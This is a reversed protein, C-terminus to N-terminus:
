TDITKVGDDTLYLENDLYVRLEEKWNHLKYLKADDKGPPLHVVFGYNSIIGAEELMLQYLSIQLSYKTVENEKWKTFPGQLYNFCFDKNTKIKEGTKWDGVMIENEYLYLKDLTGCIPWRRSFLRIESGISELKSLKADYIKHFKEIRLLVDPDKPCNKKNKEYFEEIYNHTMTGIDCARNRKTAWKELIVSQDVGADDAKKKSWYDEEFEKIFRKIYVTGSTLFKGNLTYTHGIPYFKFTPDNFYKLKELIDKKTIKNSQTM